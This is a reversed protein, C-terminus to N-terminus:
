LESRLAEYLSTHNFAYGRDLARQPVVRRSGLLEEALDGLALRLAFAPAPFFSPRRLVRALETTLDRNRAPSPSAANVPGSYNEDALIAIILGVVDDIHIWPVWQNGDGLRGGAGFRFPLAMM